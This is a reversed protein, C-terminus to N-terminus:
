RPLPVFLVRGNATDAIVAINTLPHVDLAYQLAGAIALNQALNSNAPLTPPLTLIARIKQGLFDVVSVTHSATNASVLTSTFYNYAIATPNIGVRFATAFSNVPDIVEVINSTSSAVIFCGTTNTTAGNSNSGCDTTVPDYIVSTPVNINFSQGISGSTGGTIGLSNSSTAAAAIQHNVYNFGVAIPRQGTSISSTGGTIVNVVTVTNAVSNAIAVEGTAEDAAAGMAGSGATVTQKENVGGSSYDVISATGTGGNNAVVAIHLSPILAVGMPNSGVKGTSGLSKAMDIIALSDCGFLTVAAINQGPDIAVGSPEPTPCSTSSLDISQEVTFDEANTVAGNGSSDAVDLAFRHASSVMTSPVTTTLERDGNGVCNTTLPTGDLRITLTTSGNTCTLGKGIVILPVGAPAPVSGLTSTTLVTKPIAATISFPKIAGLNLVSVSNDTQNAVVAINAGPDIAVAVPGALTPFLNSDNLRRPTTPDIVSLTNAFFNVAVVTNTLPNYAAAITGVDAANNVKLSLPVVTQDLLSFFSVVGGTGPDALVAQHTEPNIGIGRATTQVGVTTVPQSYNVSGTAAQPASQTAVDTLTQNTQSYSFQNPGPGVSSVSYFGEFTSALAAISPDTGSPFQVNQIQVADQVKISLPPASNVTQDTVTVTVVNNTRSIATITNTSNQSLNVIGLSGLNGPTALAWDLEPDVAVRPNPGTSISVIGAYSPPNLSLIVGYNKQQMAVLGRGTLPNIGVSVPTDQLAPLVSVVARANLDVVAITKSASNVVVAENIPNNNIFNYYISVSTPGSAPCSSTATGVAATCINTIFTPTTTTLDILSIDNSGMNAVVAMGTAPNVAVDSPASSTTSGVAIRTSTPPAYTPQVALNTVAFKTPDTNSKVAVPYLGPVTFDSSNSGGGISVSLQRTSVIDQSPKLQIARLQGNYTATVAPAAPNSGTGFFGGDVQFSQVGATGQPISDPLPGVVGPRVAEVRIQCKSPDATCTQTTGTQEAVGVQYVASPSPPAALFGDPIRARITSSNVVSVNAPGLQLCSTISTSSCLFVNNTSIFNTGTIYVDQFLGGLATTNPSVSTVTPTAATVVTVTATATVSTDAVSTATITVVSPSPVTAPATYVGTTSGIDGNPNPTTTSTPVSWTVNQCTPNSTLNCGPNNVTASFLFHEKTGVTASTPTINISIGTVITLTATATKSTDAQATAKVTVTPAITTTGSTTVTPISAPATYLGTADISGCATVGSACAVSWTITTNSSGSVLGSFLQTRNTIVSALTPSIQITVGASSSKSGCGLAGLASALTLITSVKWWSM